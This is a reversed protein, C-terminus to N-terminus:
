TEDGLDGADGDGNGLGEERLEGERLERVVDFWTVDHVVKQPAEPVIGMRLMTAVKGDHARLAVNYFSARHPDGRSLVKADDMASEYISDYRDLVVQQVEDDIHFKAEILKRIAVGDSTITPESVGLVQSLQRNTIGPFRARLEQLKLRRAETGMGHWQEPNDHLEPIDFVTAKPRGFKGAMSGM